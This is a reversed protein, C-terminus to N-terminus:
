SVTGSSVSGSSVSAPPSPRRGEVSVNKVAADVGRRGSTGPGPPSPAVRWVTLGRTCRDASGQACRERARGTPRETPRDTPRDTPRNSTHRDTSLPQGLRDPRTPTPRSPRIPDPTLREGTALPSATPRSQRPKQRHGRRREGARRALEESSPRPSGNSQGRAATAALHRWLKVRRWGFEAAPGRRPRLHPTETSM